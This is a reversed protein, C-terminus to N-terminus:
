LCYADDEFHFDYEKQLSDILYRARSKFDEESLGALESLYEIIDNYRLDFDDALDLADTLFKIFGGLVGPYNFVLENYVKPIESEIIISGIYERFAYGLITVKESEVELGFVEAVKELFM